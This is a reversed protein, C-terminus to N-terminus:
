IRAIVSDYLRDHREVSAEITYKPLVRAGLTDLRTRFKEDRMQGMLRALSESDGIDFLGSYQEGLIEQAADSKSCLLPVKSRLSELIVLGFGEYKSTLVFADLNSLFEDSNGVKGLWEVKESIGLSSAMKSLDSLLEGTGAIKLMDSPYNCSHTAFGKLLCPLDKQPTLRSLTGFVLHTGQPKRPSNSHRPQSLGYPIFKIEVKPSIEQSARLFSGVSNSIAVVAGARATILLSLCKSIWKPGSPMFRETNHRTIVYKGRLSAFAGILEARPLHYHVIDLNQKQIIRRLIWPQMFVSKGDLEELVSIDSNVFEDKLKPSDKLYVVQVEHGVKVQGRCLELLQKEAGGIDITTIVHLIKM